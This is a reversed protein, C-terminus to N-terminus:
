FLGICSFYFILWHIVCVIRCSRRTYTSGIWGTCFQEGKATLLIQKQGRAETVAEILQRMVDSTLSNTRGNHLTIKRVDTDKLDDVTIVDTETM